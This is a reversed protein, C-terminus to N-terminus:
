RGSYGGDVTLVSGTVYTAQPGVLWAIANAIEDPSGWRGSPIRSTIEQMREPDERLATNFDTEIWGPAVANVRIGRSAWENSQSRMLQTVGGKSASYPGVGTGGFTALMSSIHVISGGAAHRALLHRATERTIVFGATLNVALVLQWEDVTLELMPKRVTAGAAHVCIDVEGIAKVAEHFAREAAQPDTLDAAISHGPGEGRQITAVRAGLAALREATALGIGRSAGTVVAGLGDLRGTVAAPSDTASNL